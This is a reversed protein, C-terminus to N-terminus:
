VINIWDIDKNLLNLTTEEPSGPAPRHEYQWKVEAPLSILISETNGGTELGFKTGRDYVLNFEVYRGRRILQWEKNQKTFGKDGNTRMLKAYIHPYSNALELTFKLFQEFGEDDTQKQRDFFIGGVGRTENRHKIFFYDDAWKKFEPYFTPNYSDCIGKLTRHFVKAELKNIYMPTLDIGGGFWCIGNDLEFYRVNMHITPVFPNFAHVISSIGTAHYTSAEEGLIHKMQPTFPGSVHSFNIGAKEIINGSQLVCTVGAGIDKKWAHPIFHAKGDAESLVDCMKRQTERYIAAVKNAKDM